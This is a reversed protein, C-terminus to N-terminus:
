AVRRMEMPAANIRNQGGFIHETNEIRIQIGMITLREDDVNGCIEGLKSWSTWGIKKIYCRYELSYIETKDVDEALDIKIAYIPLSKWCIGIQQKTNYSLWKKDQFIHIKLETTVFSCKFAELNHETIIPQGNGIGYIWGIKSFHFDFRPECHSVNLMLARNKKVTQALFGKYYSNEINKMFTAVSFEDRYEYDPISTDLLWKLDIDKASQISKMYRKDYIELTELKNYTTLIRKKYFIAEAYSLPMMHGHEPPLALLCTANAKREMLLDYPIYDIFTIGQIDCMEEKTEDKLILFEYEICCADLLVAIEKLLDVRGKARGCFFVKPTKREGADASISFKKLPITMYTMGYKACEYLDYSLIADFSNLMSLLSSVSIKKNIATREVSDVLYVLCAAIAEEKKLEEILIRPTYKPILTAPVFIVFAKKSGHILNLIYEKQKATEEKWIDYDTITANKFKGEFIEAFIGMRMVSKKGGPFTVFIFQNEEKM